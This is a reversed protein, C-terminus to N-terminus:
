LSIDIKASWYRGRIHDWIRPSSPLQPTEALSYLQPCPAWNVRRSRVGYKVQSRKLRSYRIFELAMYKRYLAPTGQIFDATREQIPLTM